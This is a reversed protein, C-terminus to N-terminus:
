NTELLKELNKNKLESEIINSIQEFKREDNKGIEEELQMLIGSINEIGMQLIKKGIIEDIVFLQEKIEKVIKEFNIYIEEFKNKKELLRTEFYESSIDEKKRIKYVVEMIERGFILENIINVLISYSKILHNYLIKKFDRSQNFIKPISNAIVERINLQTFLLKVNEKFIETISYFDIDVQKDTVDLEYDEIIQLALILQQIIYIQFNITLDKKNVIENNIINIFKEMCSITMESLVEKDLKNKLLFLLLALKRLFFHFLPYNKYMVTIKEEYITFDNFESELDIFNKKIQLSTKFYVKEQIDKIINTITPNILRKSCKFFDIFHPLNAENVLSTLTENDYIVFHQFYNKIDSISIANIDQIQHYLFSFNKDFVNFYEFLEDLKDAGIVIPRIVTYLSGYIEDTIAQINFISESIKTQFIQCFYLLECFTLKLVELLNNNLNEDIVDLTKLIEQLYPSIIEIRKKLFNVKLKEITVNVDLDHKTKKEFFQQIQKLKPYNKPFNYIRKDLITPANKSILVFLSNKLMEPDNFNPITQISQIIYDYYRNIAIKKLMKHTNLYREAETYDKNITFFQIGNEIEEYDTVFRLKEVAEPGTNDFFAQISHVIEYHKLM